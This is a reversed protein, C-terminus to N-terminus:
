QNNPNIDKVGKKPIIKYKPDALAPNCNIRTPQSVASGLVAGNEFNIQTVVWQDQATNTCDVSIAGTGATGGTAAISGRLTYASASRGPDSSGQASLINFGTIASGANPGYLGGTVAPVSIGLNVSTGARSSTTVRPRPLTVMNHDGQTAYDFNVASAPTEAITAVLFETGGPGSKYAAVAITALPAPCGNGCAGLDLNLGINEGAFYFFGPTPNGMDVTNCNGTSWVGPAGLQWTQGSMTTGATPTVGHWYAFAGTGSNYTKASKAPICSASASPAFAVSVLATAILGLVIQKKM